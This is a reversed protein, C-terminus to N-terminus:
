RGKSARAEPKHWIEGKRTKSVLITEGSRKRFNYQMTSPRERSCPLKCNAM